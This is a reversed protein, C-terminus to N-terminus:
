TIVTHLLFTTMNLCCETIVNILARPNLSRITSWTLTPFSKRFSLLFDFFELKVPSYKDYHNRVQIEEPRVNKPQDRRVNILLPSVSRLDPEIEPQLLLNKFDLSM